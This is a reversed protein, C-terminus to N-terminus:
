PPLGTLPFTRAVIRRSVFTIHDSAVPVFPGLDASPSGLMLKFRIDDPDQDKDLRQAIEFSGTKAGVARANVGVELANLWRPDFDDTARVRVTIAIPSAYLLEVSAIRVFMREDRLRCVAEPFPRAEGGLHFWRSVGGRVSAPLVELKGM